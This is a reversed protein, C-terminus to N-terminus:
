RSASGRRIPFWSFRLQSSEQSQVGSLPATPASAARRADQRSQRRRPRLPGADSAAKAGTRRSRRIRWARTASTGPGDPGCDSYRAPRRGGITRDTYPDIGFADNDGGLSLDDAFMAANKGEGVLALARGGNEIPPVIQRDQLALRSGQAIARWEGFEREGESSQLLAHELRWAAVALHDLNQSEDELM